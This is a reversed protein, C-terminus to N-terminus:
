LIYVAIPKPQQPVVQGAGGQPGTTVPHEGIDAPCPRDWWRPGKTTPQALIYTWLHALSLLAWPWAPCPLATGCLLQLRPLCWARLWFCSGCASTPRMAVRDPLREEHGWHSPAARLQVAESSARLGWLWLGPLPIHECGKRTTVAMSQGHLQARPHAAEWLTKCWVRVM